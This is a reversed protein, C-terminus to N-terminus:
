CINTFILLELHAFDVFLIWDEPLYSILKSLVPYCRVKNECCDGVAPSAVSFITRHFLIM